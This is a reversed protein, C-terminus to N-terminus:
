EEKLLANVKETLTEMTTSGEIKECIKGKHDIIFTTPIAYIQYIGAVKGAQDTLVTFKMGAKTAFRNVQGPDEQVNVALIAVKANAYKEYFSVFEPIERRCPPCWTAWFNLLTVKNKSETEQLSNNHGNLDPLDFNPAMKGIASGTERSAQSAQTLWLGIVFVFAIILLLLKKPNKM